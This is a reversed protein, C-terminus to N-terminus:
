AAETVPSKGTQIFLRIVDSICPFGCRSSAVVLGPNGGRSRDRSAALRSNRQQGPDGARRAKKKRSIASLSLTTAWFSPGPREADM